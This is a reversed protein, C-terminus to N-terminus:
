QAVMILTCYWLLCCVNESLVAREIQESALGGCENEHVEWGVIKRSFIDEFM